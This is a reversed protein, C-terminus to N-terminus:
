ETKTSVSTFPNRLQISIRLGKRKPHSEGLLNQVATIAGHQVTVRITLPQLPSAARDYAFASNLDSQAGGTRTQASQRAENPWYSKDSTTSGAYATASIAVLPLALSLKLLHKRLM